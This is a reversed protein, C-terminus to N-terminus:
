EEKKIGKEEEESTGAMPVLTTSVPLTALPMSPSQWIVTFGQNINTPICLFIACSRVRKQPLDQAM